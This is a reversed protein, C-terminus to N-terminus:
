GSFVATIVPPEEIAKVWYDTTIVPAKSFEFEPFMEQLKSQQSPCVNM